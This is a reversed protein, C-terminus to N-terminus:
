FDLGVCVGCVDSGTKELRGDADYQCYNCMMVVGLCASPASPHAVKHTQGTVPLSKDCDDAPANKGVPANRSCGVSIATVLLVPLVGTAMTTRVIGCSTTSAITIMVHGRDHHSQLCFYVINRRLAVELLV